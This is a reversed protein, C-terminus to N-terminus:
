HPYPRFADSEALWTNPRFHTARCDGPGCLTDRAPWQGTAEQSFDGKLANSALHADFWLM